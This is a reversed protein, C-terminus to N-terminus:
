DVLEFSDIFKNYMEDTVQESERFVVIIYIFNGNVINIGKVFFDKNQLTGKAEYYSAPIGNFDIDEEKTLDAGLNDLTADRVSVSLENENGAFLEAYMDNMRGAVVMNGSKNDEFTFTQIFFGDAPEEERDVNPKGPFEIKFHYDESYYAGNGKTQGNNDDGCSSFSIVLFLSVLLLFLNKM